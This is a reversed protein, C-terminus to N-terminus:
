GIDQLDTGSVVTGYLPGVADKLIFRCSCGFQSRLRIALTTHNPLNKLRLIRYFPEAAKSTPLLQRVNSLLIIGLLPHSMGLLISTCYLDGDGHGSSCHDVDHHIKPSVRIQICKLMSFRTIMKTETDVKESELGSIQIHRLQLGQNQRNSM